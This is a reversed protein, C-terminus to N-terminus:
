KTTEVIARQLAIIVARAEDATMWVHNPGGRDKPETELGISKDLDPATFVGVRGNHGGRWGSVHVFQNEPAEGEIPAIM